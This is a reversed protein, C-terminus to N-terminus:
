ALTRNAFKSVVRNLNTVLVDGTIRLKSAPLASRRLAICRYIYDLCETGEAFIVQLASKTNEYGQALMAEVSARRFVVSDKLRNEAPYTLQIVRSDFDSTEFTFASGDFFICLIYDLPLKTLPYVPINDVMAGDFYREHGIQVARNYVPMAVAARLYQPLEEQPAKQLNFYGLERKSLNLLTVYFSTPLVDSTRCITQIGSQLFSSKLVKSVLLRTGEDCLGRWLERAQAMRGTLFAYGNLAGVSSASVATFREPPLFEAIAELAGLQYAGKAMGGSLVLAIRAM